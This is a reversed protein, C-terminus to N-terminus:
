LSRFAPKNSLLPSTPPIAFAWGSGIPAALPMVAVCGIEELRRCIVPDDSCYLCYKLVTKSWYDLLKLPAKQAHSYLTREDGIVELKVLNTQLLERALRATTLADDATFCGATNPLLHIKDRDIFDLIGVRSKAALNIRRIALTVMQTDAAVHCNRM